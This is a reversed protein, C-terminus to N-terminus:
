NLRKPTYAPWMVRTCATIRAPRESTNVRRRSSVWCSSVRMRQDVRGYPKGRSATIMLSRWSPYATAMKSVCYCKMNLLILLALRPSRSRVIWDIVSSPPFSADEHGNAPSASARAKLTWTPRELDKIGGCGGKGRGSALGPPHNKSLAIFCIGLM